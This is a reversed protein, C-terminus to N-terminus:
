APSNPSNNNKKIVAFYLLAGAALVGLALLLPDVGLGL